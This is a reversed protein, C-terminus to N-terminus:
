PTVISMEIRRNVARGAAKANSVIPQSEGYGIPRIRNAPIGNAVLYRVVAMVRRKSLDLNDAASGRNDTHGSLRITITPHAKLQAVLQALSDRSKLNLRHDGPGFEINKLIRDFLSCGIENVPIDPATDPCQDVLNLVQDNDLDNKNVKTRDSSGISACAGLLLCLTACVASNVANRNLGQMIM